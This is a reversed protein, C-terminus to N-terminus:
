GVFIEVKAEGAMEKLEGTFATWNYDTKRRYQYNLSVKDELMSMTDLRLGGLREKLFATLKSELEPFAAQDISIILNGRGFLNFKNRILWQIGLVIFVLVFLIITVLYNNTAAGISSAILLM